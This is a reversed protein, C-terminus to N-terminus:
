IVSHLYLDSFLQSPSQHHNPPSLLGTAMQIIHIQSSCWFLLVMPPQQMPEISYDDVEDADAFLSTAILTLDGNHVM